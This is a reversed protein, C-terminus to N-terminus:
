APPAAPAKKRTFIAIVLSAIFGTVITGITGGIAQMFPTQNAAYAEQRAAIEAEPMQQARMAQEGAQRIEEFYNPFLVTTLLYSIVFLILGAVVSMLTGRGVQAWYPKGERGALRLGWVLVGIQILIVVYFLNLLVPDTHWGALVVIVAWAGCLLGILLGGKLITNM